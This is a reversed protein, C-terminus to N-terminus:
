FYVLFEIAINANPESELVNGFENCLRFDITSIQEERPYVLTGRENSGSSIWNAISGYQVNAIPITILLNSPVARSQNDSRWSKNSALRMSYVYITQINLSPLSNNTISTAQVTPLVTFGMNWALTGQIRPTFGQNTISPAIYIEYGPDNTALVFKYTLVDFTCTFAAMPSNAIVSAQVAAALQTANYYGPDIVVDVPVSPGGTSYILGLRNNYSAVNRFLNNCTFSSVSLKKIKNIAYSEANFSISFDNNSVSGSTKDVSNIVVNQKNYVALYDLNTNVQSM